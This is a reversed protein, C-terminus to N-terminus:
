GLDPDECRLQARVACEHKPLDGDSISFPLAAFSPQDAKIGLYPLCSQMWRRLLSLRWSGPDGLMGKM